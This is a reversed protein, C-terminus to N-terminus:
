SGRSSRSGSSTAPPGPAPPVDTAATSHAPIGGPQHNVDLTVLYGNFRVDGSEKDWGDARTVDFLRASGSVPYLTKDDARGRAYRCFASKIATVRGTAGQCSEPLAGHHDEAHTVSNAPTPGIANSLWERDLESSLTWTVVDGVSFSEGCCQLQWGDVWVIYRM